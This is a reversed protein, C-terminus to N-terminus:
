IGTALSGADSSSSAAIAPAGSGAASTGARFGSARKESGASCPQLPRGSSGSTRSRCSTMPTRQPWPVIRRGSDAGLVRPYPAPAGACDRQPARFPSSHVSDSGCDRRLHAALSVHPDARLLLSLVTKKCTACRAGRGADTVQHRREVCGADLLRPGRCWGSTPGVILDATSAVKIFQAM